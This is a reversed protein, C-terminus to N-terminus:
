TEVDFADPAVDLWEAIAARAAELTDRRSTAAVMVWPLEHVTWAGDQAAILRYGPREGRAVMRRAAQLASARRQAESVHRPM